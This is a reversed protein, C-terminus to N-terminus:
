RLKDAEIILKAIISDWIYNSPCNLVDNDPSYSEWFNHNKALQFSVTELLKSALSLAEDRYGYEVLGEFVMYDWLLWVPGNWKCCYDVYPSYWPDSAALTPVGNKRWFDDPDLLSNLLTDAQGPRAVGAWMPLFGIIEKRKLDRTLFWFTHDVRNVHYYFGSGPDWMRENILKSMANASQGWRAADDHMGLETAMKQLSRMEKVAMVSLDLCELEDSIDEKDVDLYREASVQFVANYWDRVNEIIGYPGWELTGDQDADRNQLLWSIYRAGSSYAELLFQRDGSVQYIEWNIYNFFPASTTPKGDHPYAQPGRPGHRYAILGDDGQQEIYVRQSNQASIPDLYAYALMSLSEHLVQHGHGWGWIPERSFVYYNYSTQDSSPLMCGRSLNFASLYVMKAQASEFSLRPIRSFLAMNEDLYPQLSTRMLRTIDQMLAGADESIDQVGRFYRVHTAQGPALSIRAQLAAYDCRGTGAYNLSDTRLDSYFDTKVENFFNRFSGRYTGFSSVPTMSLVDTFRTPYPYSAGLNSILRKKTEHHTLLLCGSRADFRMAELSDAQDLVPYISVTLSDSANNLIELDCCTIKSSIVIFTECVNLGQWPQYQLLAMDPFSARVLPAQFFEGTRSVVVGNIEWVVSLRGGHESGYALPSGADDYTMKYGKDGYLRSREMAATYTTYLPDGGKADIVLYEDTVSLGQPLGHMIGATVLALVILCKLSGMIRKVKEPIM